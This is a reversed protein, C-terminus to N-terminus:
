RSILLESRLIVLSEIQTILEGRIDDKRVGPVIEGRQVNNNNTAQNFADAITSASFSGGVNDRVDDWDADGPCVRREVQYPVDKHVEQLM